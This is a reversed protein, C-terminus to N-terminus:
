DYKLSSNQRMGKYIQSVVEILPITKAPPV